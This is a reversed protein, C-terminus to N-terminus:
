RVGKSRYLETLGLRDEVEIRIAQHKPNEFDFPEDLLTVLVGGEFDRVKVFDRILDIRKEGIIKVQESTIWTIWTVIKPVDLGGTERFYFEDNAIVEDSYLSAKNMAFRDVFAEILVEVLETSPVDQLSQWTISISCPVLEPEDYVISISLEEDKKGYFSVLEVESTYQGSSAISRSFEEPSGIEIFQDPATYFKVPFLEPYYRECIQLVPVEPEGNFIELTNHLALTYSNIRDNM